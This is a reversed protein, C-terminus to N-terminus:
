KSASSLDIETTNGTTAHLGYIFQLVTVLVNVTFVCYNPSIDNKSWSDM